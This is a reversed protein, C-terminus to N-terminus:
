SDMIFAAHPPIHYVTFVDDKSWNLDIGNADKDEFDIRTQPADSGVSAMLTIPKSKEASDTTFEEQACGGLAAAVLLLLSCNRIQKKM